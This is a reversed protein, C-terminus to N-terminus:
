SLNTPQRVSNPTTLLGQCPPVQKGDADALGAGIFWPGERGEPRWGQQSLQGGTADAVACGDNCPEDWAARSSALTNTKVAPERQREGTAHAV